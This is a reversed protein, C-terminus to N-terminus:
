PPAGWSLVAKSIASQNVEKSAWCVNRSKVPLITGLILTVARRLIGDLFMLERPRRWFQGPVAALGFGKAHDKRSITALRGVQTSLM